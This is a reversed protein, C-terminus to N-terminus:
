SPTMAWLSDPVPPAPLLPRVPAPEPAVDLETLQDIRFSFESLDVFDPTVAFTRQVPARLRGLARVDVKPLPASIRDAAGWHDDLYAARFRRPKGAVEKVLGVGTAFTLLTTPDDIEPFVMKSTESDELRFSIRTSLQSRIATPLITSDPRQAILVVRVGFKAGQSVVALLETQLDKAALADPSRLYNSAEDIVVVILPQEETFVDIKDRRQERLLPKRRDMEARVWRLMETVPGPHVDNTAWSVLHEFPAITTDNPDAVLLRAAAGMRLVHTLLSYTLVSKGSRTAGAVLLHASGALDISVPDGDEDIGLEWPTSPDIMTSPDVTYPVTDALPDVTREFRMRGSVVDDQVKWYAGTIPILARLATLWRDIRDAARLDAPYRVVDVTGPQGDLTNPVVVIEIDWCELQLLAALRDRLGLRLTPLEAVFADRNLPDWECLVKGQARAQADILGANVASLVGPSLKWLEHGVPRAATPELEVIATVRNESEGLSMRRHSEEEDVHTLVIKQPTSDPHLQYGPLEIKLRENSTTLQSGAGAPVPTITIIGAKDRHIGSHENWDATTGGGFTKVLAPILEAKLARQKGAGFSVGSATFAAYTIWGGVTLIALFPRQDTLFSSIAPSISSVFGLGYAEVLPLAVGASVLPIWLDDITARYAKFAAAAKWHSINGAVAAAAAISLLITIVGGGGLASLYALVALIITGVVKTARTRIEATKFEGATLLHFGGTGLRIARKRAGM